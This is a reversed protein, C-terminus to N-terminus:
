LDVFKGSGNLAAIGDAMLKAVARDSKSASDLDAVVKWYPADGIQKHPFIRRAMQFLTRAEDPKFVAMAPVADGTSAEVILTSAAASTGVVILAGTKLFERRKM